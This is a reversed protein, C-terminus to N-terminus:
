HGDVEGGRGSRGGARGTRGPSRPGQGPDTAGRGRSHPRPRDERVWGPADAGVLKLYTLRNGQKVIQDAADLRAQLGRVYEAAKALAPDSLGAPASVAGLLQQGKAVDAYVKAAEDIAAPPVAGPGAWLIAQDDVIAAGRTALLHANYSLDALQDKLRKNLAAAAVQQAQADTLEVGGAAGAKCAANQIGDLATATMFPEIELLALSPFKWVRWDEPRSQLPITKDGVVACGALAFGDKTASLAVM